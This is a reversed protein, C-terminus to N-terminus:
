QEDDEDDEGDEGDEAAHFAALYQKFKSEVTIQHWRLLGLTQSPTQRPAEGIAWCHQGAPNVYEVHATFATAFGGGLEQLWANVGEELIRSLADNPAEYQAAQENEPETM